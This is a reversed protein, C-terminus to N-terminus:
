IENISDLIRIITHTKHKTKHKPLQPLFVVQLRSMGCSNDLCLRQINVNM